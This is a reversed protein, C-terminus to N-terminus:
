LTQVNVTKLTKEEVSVTYTKSKMNRLQLASKKNGNVLVLFGAMAKDALQATTLRIANKM